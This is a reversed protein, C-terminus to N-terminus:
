DIPNENPNMACNEHSWFKIKSLSHLKNKPHEHFSPLWSNLTQLTCLDPISVILYWVAGSGPYWHSLSLSVTLSWLCSGLPSGKLNLNTVGFTTLNVKFQVSCMAEM